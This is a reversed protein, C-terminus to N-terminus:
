FFFRTLSYCKDRLFFVINYYSFFLCLEYKLIPRLGTCSLSIFQSNSGGWWNKKIKPIEYFVFFFYLYL